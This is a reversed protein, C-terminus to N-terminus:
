RLIGGSITLVNIFYIYIMFVYINTKLNLDQNFLKYNISYKVVNLFFFFVTLGPNFPTLYKGLSM